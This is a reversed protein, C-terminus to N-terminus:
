YLLEGGGCDQLFAVDEGGQAPRGLAYARAQRPTMSHFKKFTRLLHAQDTFGYKDAATRWDFQPARLIEQWLCQYRVMDALAKPTSGTQEAVIRELQRPSLFLERALEATRLSGHALLLTGVAQRMLSDGTHERLTDALLGRALAIREPMATVELLRPALLRHLRPFYQEAPYSGNQTGRLSDDAFPLASWAYFRIAFYSILHGGGPMGAATFTANQIPCFTGRVTGATHDVMYILDACTDPVILAPRREPLCPRATGWFCRVWPALAPGPPYERHADTSFFPTATIPQYLQYLQM